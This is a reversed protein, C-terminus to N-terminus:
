KMSPLVFSGDADRSIPQVWKVISAPLKSYLHPFLAGDHAAEFKLAQGLDDTEVAVLVLDDAGAYHRQLTGQLQQVGSFHLFGDTRDKPSGDYVGNREAAEWDLRHCIKFILVAV